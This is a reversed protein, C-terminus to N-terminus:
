RKKNAKVPIAGKSVIPHPLIIPLSAIPIPSLTAVVPLTDVIPVVPEQQFFIFGQEM